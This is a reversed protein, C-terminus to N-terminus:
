KLYPILVWISGYYYDPFAFALAAYGVMYRLQIKHYHIHFHLECAIRTM